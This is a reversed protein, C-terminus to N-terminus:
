DNNKNYYEPFSSHDFIGESMANEIDKPLMKSTKKYISTSLVEFAGGSNNNGLFATVDKLKPYHNSNHFFRMYEELVRHVYVIDKLNIEVTRNEDITNLGYEVIEKIKGVKKM